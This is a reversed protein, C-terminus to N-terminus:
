NFLHQWDDTAVIVVYQLKHFFRGFNHLEYDLNVRFAGLALCDAFWRWRVTCGWERILELGTVTM